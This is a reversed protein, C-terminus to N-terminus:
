SVCRMSASLLILCSRGLHNERLKCLGTNKTRMFNYVEEVARHWRYQQAVNINTRDSTTAQVKQASKKLVSAQANVPLVYRIIQRCAGERTINHIREQIM